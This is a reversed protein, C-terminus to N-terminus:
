MAMMHCDHVWMGTAVEDAARPGLPGVKIIKVRYKDMYHALVVQNRWLQQM